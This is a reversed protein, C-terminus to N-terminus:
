FWRRLYSLFQTQAIVLGLLIFGLATFFRTPLPESLLVNGFFLAWLPVQYNVLSMFSPGATKIVWVLLITSIGTAIIGLYFVGGWSPLAAIPLGEYYLSYPVGFLAAILVSGTSFVLLSSHPACRTIISGIAYCLATAICALRGWNEFDSDKSLFITEFGVLIVIGIFGLLFGITKQLTMREGEVFIHAFPVVFLPIVAMSVGAFSSTVHQQAWSLLNFPVVNTMLGASVMFVWLRKEENSSFRPLREGMAYTLTLLLVAAILLRLATVTKPNFDILSIKTAMFAAGWFIGLAALAIWNQITPKSM